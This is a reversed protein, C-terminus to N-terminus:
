RLDFLEEAPTGDEPKESAADLLNQAMGPISLLEITEVMSEYEDADIIVKKDKKGVIYTVEGHVNNVHNHIIKQFQSPTYIEM